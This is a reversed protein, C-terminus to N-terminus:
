RCWQIQAFNAQEFENQMYGMPEAWDPNNTMALAVGM